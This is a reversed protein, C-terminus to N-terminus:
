PAEDASLGALAREAAVCFVDATLTRVLQRRYDKSARHDNIPMCQEAAVDACDQLRAPELPYGVLLTAADDADLVKPGVAGM